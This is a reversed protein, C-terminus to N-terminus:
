LTLASQASIRAGPQLALQAMAAKAILIFEEVKILRKQCAVCLLLHEELPGCDPSFLESMAYSELFEDPFHAEFCTNM